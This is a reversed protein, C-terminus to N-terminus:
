TKKNSLRSKIRDTLQRFYMKSLSEIRRGVTQDFKEQVSQGDFRIRSARVNMPYVPISETGLSFRLLSEAHLHKNKIRCYSLSKELRTAYAEAAKQGMCIAFRDNYGRYQQWYPLTVHQQRRHVAKKLDKEISDHYLLDPRCFIYVDPQWKRAEKFAQDLSHLQHILNKLSQHNDNQPSGYKSISDFGCHNLCKDPEEILLLDPNLLVHENTNLKGFENTRQNKIEAQQFFHCFIRTDGLTRAPEVINKEISQITHSLSRTIGFFCIAIKM